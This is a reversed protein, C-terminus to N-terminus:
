MTEACPKCHAQEWLILACTFIHNMIFNCFTLTPFPSATLRIDFCAIVNASEPQCLASVILCTLQGTTSFFLLIRCSPRLWSQHSSCPCFRDLCRRRLPIYVRPFVPYPICGHVHNWFRNSNSHALVNVNVLVPNTPVFCWLGLVEFLDLVVSSLCPVFPQIPM